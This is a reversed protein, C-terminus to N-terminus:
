KRSTALCSIFNGSKSSVCNVFEKLVASVTPQSANLIDKVSNQFSGSALNKLSLLVKDELLLIQKRERIPRMENKVIDCITRIESKPFRFEKLLHRMAYNWQVEIDVCKM